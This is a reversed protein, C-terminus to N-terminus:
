ELRPGVRARSNEETRVRNFVEPSNSSMGPIYSPEVRQDGEEMEVRREIRRWFYEEKDFFFGSMSNIVKSLIPTDWWIFWM